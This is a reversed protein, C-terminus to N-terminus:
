YQENYFRRFDYYKKTYEYSDKFVNNVAKYLKPEYKELIKLEFNCDRGYPCGCCGTRKLGYISYCKSNSINFLKRYSLKDDDKFWFIPRYNDYGKDTNDFCSKYATARVGGEAKRVGTINLDYGEKLKNHALDKKAYKCCKNSIPFNPPNDILFEKLLKNYKINFRSGDDYVNCWWMLTSKCKPYEKILEELPKDEWKFGHKQLRSIMESVRKSLFPQGYRKCSLPIPIKPKIVEINIDYKEKLFNIHEKTAQYELGTDFFVYDVIKNNDCKSVIDLIIDSDAGGSISCLAKKYGGYNLKHFTTLLAKGITPNDITDLLCNLDDKNM